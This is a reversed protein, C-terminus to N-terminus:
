LAGYKMIARGQMIATEVNKLRLKMWEVNAMHRAILNSQHAQLAQLQMSASLVNATTGVGAASITTIQAGLTTM